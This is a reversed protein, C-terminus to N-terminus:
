RTLREDLWLLAERPQSEPPHAPYFVREIRGSRAIITVRRLYTAGGTEFRPLSLAGAVKGEADSLLPFPLDLREALERQWTTDQLSLGLLGVGIEAFAPALNRLSELQPTSGHAGPIDDWNPPNPLGPRGSWPYVAILTWGSLLALSVPPGRTAALPQDPLALGRVLHRVGGDDVPGRLGQSIM